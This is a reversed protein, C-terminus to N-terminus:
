EISLTRINKYLDSAHDNSTCNCFVCNYPRDKNPKFTNYIFVLMYNFSAFGVFNDILREM